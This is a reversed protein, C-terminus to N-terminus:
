GERGKPDPGYRNPGATGDLLYFIFLILGGIAPLLGIWWWWGSRNTDHLRRITVALSPLLMLLLFIGLVLAVTENEFGLSVQEVNPNAWDGTPKGLTFLLASALTVFLSFLWYEKRRARGSFTAYKRLPQLMLSM